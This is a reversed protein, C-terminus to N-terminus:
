FKEGIKKYLNENWDYFKASKDSHKFSIVDDQDAEKTVQGDVTVDAKRKSELLKIQLTSSMPYVLPMARLRHTNLPVAVFAKVKPDLIPGGASMAYATSGTPTAVIIGDGRNKEVEEGDISVSFSLIRSPEQSRIVGENLAIALQEGSIEVALREREVIKLQGRTLKEIADYSEAPKVDALFGMGGMNIGLIPTEPSRQLTYLVTGDGGVTIISDVNMEEISTKEKGLKEALGKELFVEEESLFNEIEAALDLAKQSDLRSVIGIKM